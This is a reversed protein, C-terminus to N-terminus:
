RPVGKKLGDRLKNIENDNISTIIQKTKNIFSKVDGIDVRKPKELYYQTNIRNTKLSEIFNIDTKSYGLIGMLAITCEHIECKIGIKCLLAYLANYCAYYSTVIIWKGTSSQINDFDEDSSKLYESCISDNPEVLRIEKNQQLCWGIKSSM